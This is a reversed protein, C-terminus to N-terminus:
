KEKKILFQCISPVVLYGYDMALKELKHLRNYNMIITIHYSHRNDTMTVFCSFSTEKPLWPYRKKQKFFFTGAM